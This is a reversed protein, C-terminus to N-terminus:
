NIELARCCSFFFCALLQTCMGRLKLDKEHNLNHTDIRERFDIEVDPLAEAILSLNISKPAVEDRKFNIKVKEWAEMLDIYFPTKRLQVFHPTTILEEILKEFNSDVYTSGWAGGDPIAIEELRFPEKSRM